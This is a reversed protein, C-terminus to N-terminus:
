PADDNVHVAAEEASRDDVLETATEHLTRDGPGLGGDPRDNESAADVERAVADSEADPPWGEDPEVVRGSGQDRAVRHEPEERMIREDLPEDVRSEARTIGYEDVGLPEDPPYEEPLRDDDVVESVDEASTGSDQDAM